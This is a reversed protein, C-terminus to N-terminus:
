HAHASGSIMIGVRRHIYYYDSYHDKSLAESWAKLALEIRANTWRGVAEVCSVLDYQLLFSQDSREELAMKIGLLLQM